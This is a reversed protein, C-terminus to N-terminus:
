LSKQELSLKFILLTYSLECLCFYLSVPDSVIIPVVGVDNIDYTSQYLWYHVCASYFFTGLWMGSWSGTSSRLFRKSFLTLNSGGPDKAFIKIDNSPEFGDIQVPMFFHLYADILRHYLEAAAVHSFRYAGPPRADALSDTSASLPNPFM